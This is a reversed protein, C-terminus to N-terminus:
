NYKSFSYHFDEFIRKRKLEAPNGQYIGMPELNTTAVSGASLISYEGLTVNPCVISRAGVWSGSKLTIPYIILDFKHRKYNHNGTFLYAGQSICCDSEITVVALNDIWCREGLWVNDKVELRWPYKIKCGPKIIISCGLKAGFLRLVSCKIKSPIPLSHEFLLYSVIMWIAIKFKNGPNFWSNDYASLKVRSM